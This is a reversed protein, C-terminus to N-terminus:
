VPNQLNKIKYWFCAIKKLTIYDWYIKIVILFIWNSNFISIDSKIPCALRFILMLLIIFNNNMHINYVRLFFLKLGKLAFQATLKKSSYLANSKFRGLNM